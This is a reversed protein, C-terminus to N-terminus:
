GYPKRGVSSGSQFLQRCRPEAGVVPKEDEPGQHDVTGGQQNCPSRTHTLGGEQTGKQSEARGPLPQDGDFLHALQAHDLPMAVLNGQGRPFGIHFSCTGDAQDVQDLRRQPHSGIPDDQPLATALLYGVQQPGEVGTVRTPHDGEMGVAHFPYRGAQSGQPKQGAKLGHGQGGQGFPGETRHNVQFTVPTLAMDGLYSPQNHTALPGQNTQRDTNPGATTVGPVTRSPDM